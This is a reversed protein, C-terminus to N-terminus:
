REDFYQKQAILGKEIMELEYDKAHLDDTKRLDDIVLILVIIFLILTSIIWMHM